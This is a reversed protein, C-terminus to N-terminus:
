RFRAPKQAHPRCGPLLGSQSIRIPVWFDAQPFNASAPRNSRIVLLESVIQRIRIEQRTDCLM